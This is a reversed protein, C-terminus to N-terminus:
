RDDVIMCFGAYCMTGLMFIAIGRWAEAAMDACIGLCVLWLVVCVGCILGKFFRM